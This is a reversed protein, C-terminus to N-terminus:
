TKHSYDAGGEVIDMAERSFWIRLDHGETAAGKAQMYTTRGNVLGDLKYRGDLGAVM